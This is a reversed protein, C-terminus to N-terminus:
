KNEIFVICKGAASAVSNNTLKFCLIADAIYPAASPIYSEGNTSDRDLLNGGAVDIAM